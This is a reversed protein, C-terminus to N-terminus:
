FTPPLPEIEGRVPEFTAPFYGSPGNGTPEVATGAAASPVIPENRTVFAALALLAVVAIAGVLAGAPRVSGREPHSPRNIWVAHPIRPERAVVEGTDLDIDIDPAM